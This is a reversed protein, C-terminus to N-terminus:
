LLMNPVHGIMTNVTDVFGSPTVDNILMASAGRFMGPLITFGLILGLVLCLLGISICAVIFMTGKRKQDEQMADMQRNKADVEDRAQALRHEFEVQKREDARAFEAQLEKLERYGEKIREDKEASKREQEAMKDEYSTILQKKAEENKARLEDLSNSAENRMRDIEKKNAIQLEDYRKRIVDVENHRDLEDRLAKARMIDDSYHRKLYTDIEERTREYEELEQEQNMRFEDSLNQLIRVTAREYLVQAAERRAVYLDALAQDRVTKASEEFASGVHEIEVHLSTENANDFSREAAAAAQDVYRQKKADYQARLEQVKKEIEQAKNDILDSYRMRIDNARSAAETNADPSIDFHRTLADIEARLAQMYDDKLKQQNQKHLAQLHANASDAMAQVHNMLEPVDAFLSPDFRFEPLQPYNFHMDYVDMDVKLDFPGSVFSHTLVEELDDQTFPEATPLNMQEDGEDSFLALDDDSFDDFDADFNDDTFDLDIEGDSAESSGDVSYLSEPLPTGYNNGDYDVMAIDDITGQDPTDQEIVTTEGSLADASNQIEDVADAVAMGSGAGFENDIFGSDDTYPADDSYPADDDFGDSAPAEGGITVKSGDFSLPTNNDAISQLEDLTTKQDLVQVTDEGTLGEKIFCWNFEGTRMFKFERLRELSAEDPLLILHGQEIEAPLVCASVARDKVAKGFSGVAENGMGLERLVSDDLVIALYGGDVKRVAGSERDMSEYVMKMVSEEFRLNRMIIKAKKEKKNKGKKESTVNREEAADSVAAEAKKSKGFIAM